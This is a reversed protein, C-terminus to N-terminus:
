MYIRVNLENEDIDDLYNKEYSNIMLCIKENIKLNVLFGSGEKAFGGHPWNKYSSNIGGLIWSQIQHLNNNKDNLIKQYIL